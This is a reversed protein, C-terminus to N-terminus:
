KRRPATRIRIVPWQGIVNRLQQRQAESLAGDAYLRAARDEVVGRLTVRETPVSRLVDGIDGLLEQPIRGRVVRVREGDYKLCFLENARVLALVLPIALLLMALPILM